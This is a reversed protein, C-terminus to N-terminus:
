TQPAGTNHLISECMAAYVALDHISDEHSLNSIAYRSLKVLVLEFLHWQDNSVLKSPVGDPFLVDVLKAVRKFNDGYVANRERYTEAMEGLIDAATKTVVPSQVFNFGETRGVKMGHNRLLTDDIQQVISAAERAMWRARFEEQQPPTYACVDHIALVAAGAIGEKKYMAVVDPRDDYAAVVDKLAVGYEPLSHLMERKLEVSPRNDGNNRMMLIPERCNLRAAIWALTETRRRAPRATLFVPVHGADLYRAFVAFNGVPDDFCAAHYVGYREEPNTQPWDILPIRARDDSLCNDLDWIAFKKRGKEQQQPQYNNAM